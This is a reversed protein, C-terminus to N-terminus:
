KSRKKDKELIIDSLLQIQDKLSSIEIEWKEPISVPKDFNDLQEIDDNNNSKKDEIISSSNNNIHEDSSITNTPKLPDQSSDIMNKNIDFESNLWYNGDKYMNRSQHMLALSNSYGTYGYEPKPTPRLNYPNFLPTPYDFPYGKLIINYDLSEIKSLLLKWDLTNKQRWGSVTAKHVGLYKSLDLDTKISLQFKVRDLIENTNIEM